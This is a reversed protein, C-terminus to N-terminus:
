TARNKYKKIRQNFFFFVFIGWFISFVDAMKKGGNKSFKWGLIEFDEWFKGWRWRGRGSFNAPWQEEGGVLEPWKGFRGREV